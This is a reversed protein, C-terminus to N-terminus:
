LWNAVIHEREWKAQESWSRAHDAEDKQANARKKLEYRLKGLNSSIANPSAPMTPYLRAYTIYLDQLEERTVGAKRLKALGANWKGRESAEASYGVADVTVDWLEDRPREKKSPKEKTEEATEEFLSSQEGRGAIAPASYTGKEISTEILTEIAEQPVAAQAPQPTMALPNNGSPTTSDVASAQHFTEVVQGEQVPFPLPINGSPTDILSYASTFHRGTNAINQVVRAFGKKILEKIAASVTHRDKIGCARMFDTYSILAEERSWGRTLRCIRYWVKFAIPSLLMCAEDGRDRPVALFPISQQQASVVASM